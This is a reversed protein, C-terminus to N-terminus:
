LLFDFTLTSSATAGSADAIMYAFVDVVDAGQTLADAGAQNLNYTWDGGGNIFLFGYQGSVFLDGDVHNGNIETVILSDGLDPDSDNALANGTYSSASVYVLDPNAVPATNGGSGADGGDGSLEGGVTPAPTGSPSNVSTVGTGRVNITLQASDEAGHQDAVRYDFVDTDDSAPADGPRLTYTWTGDFLMFLDGYNGSIFVEADGGFDTGGVSTVMLTDGLDPDTDNALVNGAAGGQVTTDAFDEDHMAVPADNVGTVHITVTAPASDVTGDNAVYQFSVDAGAGEGLFDFLGGPGFSYTGGPHVDFREEPAGDVSVLRFSLHDGDVDDATLNNGNVIHDEDTANGAALAVPADNVANVTVNVTATDALEGDSVTYTFSDAGNFNADPTYTFTGDGNHVVSGHAGQTFGTISAPTLANDV